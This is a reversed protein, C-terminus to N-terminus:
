LKVKLLQSFLFTSPPPHLTTKLENSFFLSLNCITFQKLKLFIYPYKLNCGKYNASIKHRPPSLVVRWGGGKDILLVLILIM